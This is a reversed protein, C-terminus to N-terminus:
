ATVQAFRDEPFVEAVQVKAEGQHSIKYRRLSVRAATDINLYGAWQGAHTREVSVLERYTELRHQRLLEGIGHRGDVLMAQFCQSFGGGAVITEAFAYPSGTIRGRLVVRRKLIPENIVVSMELHAGVSPIATHLLLEVDIPEWLFAELMKTITGDTVLLTRLFPALPALDSESGSNAGALPSFGCRPDFVYDPGTGDHDAILYKRLIKGVPSKPLEKRIEILRPRKFDALKRSCYAHIDERKCLENLVLVAKIKEGAAGDPVGLVVAEAVNPHQKLATEVESPDVKNGSVNIFGRRRGRLVLSGNSDLFGTDGPFFERGKFISEGSQASGEYKRAAYPSTIAINGPVGGSAVQDLDDLIRISVGEIPQGVSGASMRDSDEREVSVVGTETTGYLQRVTIGYKSKFSQATSQPLPAGASLAYRLSRLDTSSDLEVLLQYM